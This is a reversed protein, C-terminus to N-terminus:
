KCVQKSRRSHPAITVVRLTLRGENRSAEHGPEAIRIPFAFRDRTM